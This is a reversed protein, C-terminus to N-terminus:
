VNRKENRKTKMRKIKQCIKFNPDSHPMPRHGPYHVPVSMSEPVSHRHSHHLLNMSDQHMKPDLGVFSHMSPRQPRDFQDCRVLWHQYMVSHVFSLPRMALERIRCTLLDSLKAFKLRDMSEAWRLHLWQM